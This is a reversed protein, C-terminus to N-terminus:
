NHEHAEDQPLACARAVHDLMAELCTLTEDKKDAAVHYTAMYRYLVAIDIETLVAAAEGVIDATLRSFIILGEFFRLKTDWTEEGNPREYAVYDRLTGLTCRTLTLIM